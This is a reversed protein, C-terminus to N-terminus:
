IKRISKSQTRKTNVKKLTKSSSNIQKRKDRIKAYRIETMRQSLQQSDKKKNYQRPENEYDEDDSEIIGKKNSTDSNNEKLNQDKESSYNKDMVENKYSDSNDDSESNMEIVKSESVQKSRKSEMGYGNISDVIANYETLYRKVSSSFFRNRNSSRRTKESDIRKKIRSVLRSIITKKKNKIDLLDCYGCIVGIANDLETYFAKVNFLEPERCLSLDDENNVM